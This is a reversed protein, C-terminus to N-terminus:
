QYINTFLVNFSQFHCHKRASDTSYHRYMNHFNLFSTMYMDTLSQKRQSTATNVPTYIQMHQLTAIPKHKKCTIKSVQMSFMINPICYKNWM